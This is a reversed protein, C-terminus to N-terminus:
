GPGIGGSRNAVTSRRRWANKAPGSNRPGAPAAFPHHWRRLTSVKTAQALTVPTPTKSLAKLAKGRAGYRTNVVYGGDAEVVEAHYEKNARGETCYLSISQMRRQPLEQAVFRNSARKPTWCAGAKSAPALVSAGPPM